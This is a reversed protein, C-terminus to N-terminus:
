HANILGVERAKQQDLGSAELVLTSKEELSEMELAIASATDHVAKNLIVMRARALTHQAAQMKLNLARVRLDHRHGPPSNKIDGDIQPGVDAVNPRQCPTSNLSSM